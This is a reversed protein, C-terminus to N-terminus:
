DAVADSEGQHTRGRVWRRLTRGAATRLLAIVLALLLIWPLVFALFQLVISIMAVMSAVFSHGAEILPNQGRFGAVGGKGIYNFSMPTSALKAQQGSIVTKSESIQQRLADLQGQLQARERDGSGKTSIRQEISKIQQEADSKTTTAADTTPATDEGTFETQSLRGGAKVVETTAEKGYARAIEPALKVELSAQVTDDDSVSYGLGTIRCRGVGLAECRAAHAEQVKSIAEDALRFSYKYDFAVGPAATPAISPPTRGDTTEYRAAPAAAVDRDGPQEARKSCGVSALTVLGTMVILKRM